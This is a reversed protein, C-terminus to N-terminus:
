KRKEEVKSSFCFPMVYLVKYTRYITYSYYKLCCWVFLDFLRFLFIINLCIDIYVYVCVAYGYLIRFPEVFKGTYRLVKNEYMVVVLNCIQTNCEPTPTYLLKSFTNNSQVHVIRDIITMWKWWVFLIGIM